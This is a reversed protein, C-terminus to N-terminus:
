QPALISKVKDCIEQPHFPRGDWKLFQHDPSMLTHQRILQGLQADHNGELLLTTKASEFFRKVSERPFPHLYIPHLYNARIGQAELWRLAELAQAKTSGWGILSIDADAPGYLVPDPLEAAVTAMKRMRKAHIEHRNSASEDIDGVEDHENSNAVYRANKMGPLPRRSVGSETFKYRPYDELVGERAALEEPTALPGRDIVVDLGDFDPVSYLSESIYKDSLVIVPMHYREAFNFAQQITHYAENADGPAIVMRPFEDHGAHINFLLDGQGTWTPLGTGPGPRQGEIIVLPVEAIGVLSLAETMLCFGGGSTGIMARVGAYGAGTAYLVGALEDEPQKVVIGMEKEHAAMISLIASTPTMPYASYFKCGAKIAGYSFAANGSLLVRAKEGSPVIHYPFQTIDYQTQILDYGTKALTVNLGIVKEGKKQFQKTILEELYTFPYKLLALSAGLAVTNKMVDIGEHEKVIKLLPLGYLRVGAPLTNPDIQFEETDYIVGGGSPIQHKHLEFTEKNLCILLDVRELHSHIPEGSVRIHYSNHGGRILSPYELYAFVNLGGRTFCRSFMEGSANIGYGAAGGVMWTFANQKLSAPLDHDLVPFEQQTSELM